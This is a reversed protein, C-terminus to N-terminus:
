RSARETTTAKAIAARALERLASVQETAKVNNAFEGSAIRDLTDLLDPAAAILARLQNLEALSDATVIVSSEAYEVYLAGVFQGGDIQDYRAYTNPYWRFEPTHQATQKSM